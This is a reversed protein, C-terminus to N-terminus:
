TEIVVAAAAHSGTHTLSLLIRNGGKIRMLELGKDRLEVHPAGSSLRKVVIDQWGLEAGIGTGLAKSVAEKAAFRAAIFPGPNKQARCYAMEEPHLVREIFRSGFRQVAQEIRSVEVLDIGIGLVM